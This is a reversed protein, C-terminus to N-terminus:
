RSEHNTGSWSKAKMRCVFKCPWWHCFLSNFISFFKNKDLFNATFDTLLVNVVKGQVPQDFLDM